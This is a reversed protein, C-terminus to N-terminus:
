QATVDLTGDDAITLLYETGNPATLRLGASKVTGAYWANGDWDLTYANSRDTNSKGNGVIHAYRGDLEEENYKGEAHQYDSGAITGLGEAHAGQGYTKANEGECHSGLGGAISGWGEAHAAVNVAQTEYGEAHSHNEEAKTLYGHAFANKGLKYWPSESEEASGVTRLAGEKQGNVLNDNPINVDGGTGAGINERALAKEEETLTQAEDYRVVGDVETDGIMVPLAVWQGNLKIRLASKVSM